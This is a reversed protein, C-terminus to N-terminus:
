RQGVAPDPKGFHFTRDSPPPPNGAHWTITFNKMNKPTVSLKYRLKKIIYIYM